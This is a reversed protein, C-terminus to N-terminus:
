VTRIYRCCQHTHHVSHESSPILVTKDSTYCEVLCCHNVSKTTFLTKYAYILMVKVLKNCTLRLLPKYSENKKHKRTNRVYKLAGTCGINEWM